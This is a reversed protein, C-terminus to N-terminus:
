RRAAAPPIRLCVYPLDPLKEVSHYPRETQIVFAPKAGHQRVLRFYNGLEQLADGQYKKLQLM